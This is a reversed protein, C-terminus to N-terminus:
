VLDRRVIITGDDHERHVRFGAAIFLPLPGLHQQADSTAQRQPM